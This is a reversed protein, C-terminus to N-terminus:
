YFKSAPNRLSEKTTQMVPHHQKNDLPIKLHKTIFFKTQRMGQNYKDYNLQEPSEVTSGLQCEFGTHGLIGCFECPQSVPTPTVVSVSLKDFKQFLTEVKASLHDLTSIEYMGAEIKSPSPAVNTIDREYTWLYHNQAMDEILAYAGTYSKNMLAGGAAADVYIKTTHLLGNYFTHIILWKELGHHPCLRLMEKFREWADYLSEGDKQTFQTIQNRLQFTKSYPFFRALFAQRMQHWSTISGIELSHFWASARDGLSFPFLHLRIAEQNAKLTGSLRLFISVHLNLDETPSGFFQNQQVLYILAPKIEFNNGVTPYEIVVYPEDSSPIAYERLTREKAM